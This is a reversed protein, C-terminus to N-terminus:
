PTTSGDGINGIIATLKAELLTGFTQFMVGLAIVLLGAGVVYEIVTLGEEDDWFNKVAQTFKNM